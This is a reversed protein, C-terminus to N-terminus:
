DEHVLGRPWNLGLISARRALKTRIYQGKLKIRVPGKPLKRCKPLDNSRHQIKEIKSRQHGRTVKTAETPGLFPQMRNGTCNGEIQYTLQGINFIKIKSREHGRTVEPPRSFVSMRNRMSFQRYQGIKM